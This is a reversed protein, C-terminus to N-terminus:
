EAAEGSEPGPAADPASSPPRSQGASATGAPPTGSPTSSGPGAGPLLWTPFAFFIVLGGLLLFFIAIWFLAGTAPDGNVQLYMAGTCAGGTGSIQGNVYFVGTLGVWSPLYHSVQETGATYKSRSSNASGGSKVPLGDIHVWWHHNTIVRSTSGHWHVTGNQDVVLPHASSAGGGGPGRAADVLTGHSDLSRGFGLCGASGTLTVGVPNGASGPREAAGATTGFACAGALVAATLIGGGIVGFSKPKM